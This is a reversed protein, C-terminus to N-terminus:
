IVWKWNRGKITVRWDLLQEIEWFDSKEEEANNQVAGPQSASNREYQDKDAPAPELITVLIM